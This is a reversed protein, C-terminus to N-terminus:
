TGTRTQSPPNGDAPTTRPSSQPLQHFDPEFCARLLGLLMPSSRLKDFCKTASFERARQVGQAGFHLYFSYPASISDAGLSLYPQNWVCKLAIPIQADFGDPAVIAEEAAIALAFYREDHEINKLSVILGLHPKIVLLAPSAKWLPAYREIEALGKEMQEKTPWVIQAPLVVVEPPNDAPM